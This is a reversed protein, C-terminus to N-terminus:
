DSIHKQVARDVQAYLASRAGSNDLVVDARRCKEAMSMQSDIRAQAEQQTLHNRQMLRSLQQEPSCTVVWVESVLDTMGAEFLLPIVMVIEPQTALVEQMEKLRQRVFPHILAELWQRQAADQFIIQGLRSRDLTNGANLIEPGYQRVIAQWRDSGELVAERAYCDADLIPLGYRHALYSSVTTKGTGIGGTLGLVKSANVSATGRHM